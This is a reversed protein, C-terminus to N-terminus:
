SGLTVDAVDSVLTSIGGSTKVPIRRIDDLSNVVGLGRIFYQNSNKEIYSGGTNANNAELAAYVEPLTIGAANLRDADIAVEYQKVFGGWGSVEAVGETGSLQKRM